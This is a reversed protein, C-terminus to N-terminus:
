GGLLTKKSVLAASTDGKGSTDITSARGMARAAAARAAAGAADVSQDQMSPPTLASVHNTIQPTAGGGLGIIGGISKIVGSM